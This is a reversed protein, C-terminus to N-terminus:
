SQRRAWIQHSSARRRTLPPPTQLWRVRRAEGTHVEPRDGWVADVVREEDEHEV